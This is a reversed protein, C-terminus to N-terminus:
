RKNKVLKIIDIQPTNFLRFNLLPIRKSAGLGTSVYQNVKEYTYLGSVMKQDPFFSEMPNKTPIVLAGYFPIRIQGGHYHGAIILDYKYNKIKNMSIYKLILKNAPEHGVGISTNNKVNSYKQKFKDQYYYKKGYAFM